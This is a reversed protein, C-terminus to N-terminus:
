QYVEVQLGAERVKEAIKELEFTSIKELTNVPTARALPYIMVSRPQIEVLKELWASVEEGTTNDVPEGRYHGRLFM